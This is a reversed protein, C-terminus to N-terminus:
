TMESSAKCIMPRSHNTVSSTAELAQAQQTYTCSHHSGTNEHPSSSPGPRARRAAQAKRSLKM